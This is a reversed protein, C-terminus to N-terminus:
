EAMGNEQSTYPSSTQWTIDYKSLFDDFAKLIYRGDNDTRLVKMIHELQREVLTKWEKFWALVKNEAWIKRSFDDIFNLFYRTAGISM